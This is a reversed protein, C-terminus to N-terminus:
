MPCAIIQRTNGTIGHDSWINLNNKLIILIKLFTTSHFVRVCVSTRTPQLFIDVVIDPGMIDYGDYNLSFPQSNEM